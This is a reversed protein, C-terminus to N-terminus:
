LGSVDGNLDEFRVGRIDGMGKATFRLGMAQWYEPVDEVWGNRWFHVNGSDDIIGYDGRGDGDIDALRVRDQAYGENEKIKDYFKFTPPKGAARDGDGQNVSLYLNGEPGICVIDDLGDANMDIFHLGRPICYMNPFM